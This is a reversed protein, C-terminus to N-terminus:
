VPMAKDVANCVAEFSSFTSPTLTSKDDGAGDLICKAGVPSNDAGIDAAGAVTLSPGPQVAAESVGGM